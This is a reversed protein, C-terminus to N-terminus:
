CHVSRETTRRGWLDLLKNSHRTGTESQTQLRRSLAQTSTEPAVQEMSTPLTPMTISHRPNRLHPLTAPHADVESLVCDQMTPVMVSAM